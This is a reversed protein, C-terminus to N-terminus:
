YDSLKCQKANQLLFNVCRLDPGMGLQRSTIAFRNINGLAGDVVGTFARTKRETITKYEPIYLVPNCALYM